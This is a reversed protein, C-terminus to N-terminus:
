AHAVARRGPRSLRGLLTRLDHQVLGARSGPTATAVVAREGRRALYVDGGPTLATLQRVATEERLTEAYELMADARAAVEEAEEDPLNSAVVEGGREFVVAARVEDSVSLMEELAHNADM